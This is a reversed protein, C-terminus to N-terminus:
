RSRRRRVMRRARDTVDDTAGWVTVGLLVGLTISAVAFATNAIDGHVGGTAVQTLSLFGTAGPVLLWFGPLFLVMESPGRRTSALWLVFPTMALAGFFGTLPGPFWLSGVVQGAHAVVLVLFIAWLSRRPAGTHLRFGITLVVLALLAALWGLSGLPNDVLRHAPAKVVAAAALVGFALLFLNVIGEVLRSAGSITDGYALEMTGTTLAAGPLFLVLPPIIIRIPNDIDFHATLVLVVSSVGFAAVVPLVVQWRPATFLRAVGVILGLVFSLAIGIPTPQLLLAFGVALIGMGVTRGVPGVAPPADLITRLRVLGEAADLGGASSEEALDEIGALQDL